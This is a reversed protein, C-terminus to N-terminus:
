LPQAEADTPLQRYYSSLSKRGEAQQVRCTLLRFQRSFFTPSRDNMARDQAAAVCLGAKSSDHGSEEGGSSSEPLRHLGESAPPGQEQWKAFLYYITTM